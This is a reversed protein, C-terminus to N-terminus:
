MKYYKELIKMKEQVGTRPIRHNVLDSTEQASYINRLEVATGVGYARAEKLLQAKYRTGRPISDQILRCFAICAEYEDRFMIDGHLNGIGKYKTDLEEKTPRFREYDKKLAHVGEAVLTALRDYTRQGFRAVTQGKDKLLSKIKKSDCEGDTTCADELDRYAAQVRLSTERWTERFPELYGGHAQIDRHAEAAMGAVQHIEKGAADIGSSVAKGARKAEAVVLSALGYLGRRMDDGFSGKAM